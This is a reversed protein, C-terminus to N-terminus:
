GSQPQGLAERLGMRRCRNQLQAVQPLRCHSSRWYRRVAYVDRGLSLALRATILSGSRAEAQVVLTGLSLAAIIRNRLPFNRALPPQDLPFESIVAGQTSVETVLHSRGRPYDVTLGCGLVALTRGNQARLAGRHAAVDVGRAFGSVVCIGSAALHYGFQDAVELAYSNANRSGVIAICPRDPIRGRVYLVPPPLDLDRLAAPYNSDLITVITAGSKRAANDEHHAIEASKRCVQFAKRMQAQPLGLQRAVSIQSHPSRKSSPFLWSDLDQALRCVSERALGSCANLTILTERQPDTKNPDQNPLNM